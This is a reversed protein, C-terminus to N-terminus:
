PMDYIEVLAVGRGGQASSVEITYDGESLTIFMAADSMTPPSQQKQQLEASSGDQSWSDNSAIIESGKRVVIKADDLAGTIGRSQLGAGLARILVKLNGQVSIGAYM